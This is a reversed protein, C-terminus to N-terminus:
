RLIVVKEPAICANNKVKLFYIGNPIKEIPLNIHNKGASLSTLNFTTVEQGLVNFLGIDYDNPNNSTLLLQIRKGKVPNRLLEMTSKSPLAETPEEEIGAGYFQYTHLGICSVVYAYTGQVDLESCGYTSKAKYYGAWLPNAPDSVDFICLMNMTTAIYAYQGSVEIGSCEYASM